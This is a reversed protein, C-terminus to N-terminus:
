IATAMALMLYPLLEDYTAPREVATAGSQLAANAEALQMPAGPMVAPEVYTANAVAHRNFLLFM